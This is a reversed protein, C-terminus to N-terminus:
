SRACAEPPAADIAAVRSDAEAMTIRGEACDRWIASKRIDRNQQEAASIQPKQPRSAAPPKPKAPAAVMPIVNSTPAKEVRKKSKQIQAPTADAVGTNEELHESLHNPPLNYRPGATSKVPTTRYTKGPDGNRKIFGKMDWKERELMTYVSHQGPTRDVEIYGAAELNQIALRVAKDSLGTLLVLREISPWCMHTERDLHHTLWFAVRSAAPTLRRDSNVHKLMNFVFGAHENSDIM